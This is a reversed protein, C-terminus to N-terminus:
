DIGLVRVPAGDPTRPRRRLTRLLTPQSTMIGLKRSLKARARGGLALTVWHLAESSRCSQRAYRAMTGTLPETFINQACRDNRCFFKRTHLLTRVPRGQSPLDALSRRYQSHVRM